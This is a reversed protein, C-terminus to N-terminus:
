MCEKLYQAFVKKKLVEEITPRLTPNKNLMSKILDVIEIPAKLHLM